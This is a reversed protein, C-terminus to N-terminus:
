HILIWKTLWYLVCYKAFRKDIFGKKSGSILQMDYLINYILINIYLFKGHYHNHHFHLNDRCSSHSHPDKHHQVKFM